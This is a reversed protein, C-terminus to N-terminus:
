TKKNSGFKSRLFKWFEKRTSKDSVLKSIVGLYGSLNLHSEPDTEQYQNNFNFDKKSIQPKHNEDQNPHKEYGILDDAKDFSSKSKQIYGLKEEVLGKNNFSVADEPDLEIAKEYDEISGMLDGIRDKFYARSSYRYPNAPELNIARDFETMAEDNRELLHLIVARDSIYTPNYPERSILFDFDELSSNYEGLRSNVRARFFYFELNADDQNICTNIQELAQKFKGEKFFTVGKDFNEM